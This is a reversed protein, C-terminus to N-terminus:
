KLKYKNALRFLYYVADINILKALEPKEESLASVLGALHIVTRIKNDTLIFELDDRDTVNIQEYNVKINEYEIESNMLEKHFDTAIVNETGIRQILKPLLKSGIQGNVGTILVKKM